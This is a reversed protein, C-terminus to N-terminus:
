DKRIKIRVKRYSRMERAYKRVLRSMPLHSGPAEMRPAIEALPIVVFPHDEFGPYPVLDVDVTRPAFKNNPDRKRGLKNELMRIERKVRGISWSSELALVCNLFPLRGSPGFPPTQYISSIKILRFLRRLEQLAKAIHFRPRRNSGLSLFYVSM